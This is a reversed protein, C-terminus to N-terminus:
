NGKNGTAIILRNKSQEAVQQKEKISLHQYGRPLPWGYGWGFSSPFYPSGGIRVGLLM